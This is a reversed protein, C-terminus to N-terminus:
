GGFAQAIVAAPEPGTSIIHVDGNRGVSLLSPYTEFAATGIEQVLSATVEPPAIVAYGEVGADLLRRQMLSPDERPDPSYVVVTFEATGAAQVAHIEGLQARCGPCWTAYVVLLVPGESAAIGGITVPGGTMVDTMAADRWSEAPSGTGTGGLSVAAIAMILAAAAAALIIQPTTVAM